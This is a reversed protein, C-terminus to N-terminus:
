IMFVALVRFGAKKLEVEPNLIVVCKSKLFSHPNPVDEVRM